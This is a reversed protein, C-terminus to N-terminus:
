DTTKTRELTERVSWVSFNRDLVEEAFLPDLVNNRVLRELAKAGREGKPMTVFDEPVTALHDNLAAEAAIPDCSGKLVQDALSLALASYRDDMRYKEAGRATMALVAMDAVGRLENFFGM